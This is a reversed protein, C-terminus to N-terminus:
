NESRVFQILAAENPNNTFATAAANHLLFLDLVLTELALIWLRLAPEAQGQYAQLVNLVVHLNACASNDCLDLVILLYHALHLEILLFFVLLSVEFFASLQLLLLLILLSFRLLGRVLM